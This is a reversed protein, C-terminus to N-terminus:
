GNERSQEEDSAWESMAPRFADGDFWQGAGLFTEACGSLGVGFCRLAAAEGADTWDAQRAFELFQAGYRSWLNAVLVRALLYAAHPDVSDFFGAGTWFDTLRGSERWYERVRLMERVDIQLPDRGAIRDECIQTLGEDLWLPLSRQVISLHILEHVLTSEYDSPKGARIAIHVYGRTLLVGGPRSSEEEPLFHAIYDVFREHGRFSLLVHPGYGGDEALPSLFGLVRKWADEAFRLLRAASSPDLDTLLLFDGCDLIAAGPWSQRLREVWLRALRHYVRQWEEEAVRATVWESVSSWDPHAFGHEVVASQELIGRLAGDDPQTVREESM